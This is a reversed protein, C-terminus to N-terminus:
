LGCANAVLDNIASSALADPDQPWEGMGARHLAEHILVLAGRRDSLRSFRRCLFTPAAGVTTYGWAGRCVQKEQAESAPYYLTSALAEYGDTGLDLFLDRCQAKEALSRAALQHSAALRSRVPMPVKSSIWPSAAIPAAASSQSRADIRDRPGIAMATSCTAGFIAAFVLQRRLNRIDM